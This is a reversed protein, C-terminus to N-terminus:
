TAKVLESEPAWFAAKKFLSEGSIEVLAEYGRDHHRSVSRVVGCVHVGNNVKVLAGVRLKPRKKAPKPEV